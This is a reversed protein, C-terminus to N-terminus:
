DYYKLKNQEEIPNKGEPSVKFNGVLFNFNTLNIEHKKLYKVFSGSITYYSVSNVGKRTKAM